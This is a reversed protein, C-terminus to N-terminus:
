LAPCSGTHEAKCRDCYRTPNCPGDHNWGCIECYNEKKVLEAKATIGESKNYHEVREQIEKLKERAAENPSNQSWNAWKKEDPVLREHEIKWDRSKGLCEEVMEPCRRCIWRAIYIGKDGIQHNHDCNFGRGSAEPSTSAVCGCTRLAVYKKDHGFWKCPRTSPRTQWIWIRLLVLALVVAAASALAIRLTIM